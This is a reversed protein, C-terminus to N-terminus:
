PFQGCQGGGEEELNRGDGHGFTSHQLEPIQAAPLGPWPQHDSQVYWGAGQPLVDNTDSLMDDPIVIARRLRCRSGAVGGMAEFFM